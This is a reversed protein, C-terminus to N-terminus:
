CIGSFKSSAQSKFSSWMAVQRAAYCMHGSNPAGGFSTKINAWIDVQKQFYEVTWAMEYRLLVTEEKARDFKAKARLWHM